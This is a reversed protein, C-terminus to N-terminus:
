FNCLYKLLVVFEADLINNSNPMSEILKTNYEFSKSTITKNSNIRNNAANNENADDSICDRYSNWLSGSTMSCNDSYELLNYMPMVINLDEANDIFTSNIKSICSRFWVSNKSNLKKNRNRADNDGEAAINKDVSYQCNSLGNIKIFKRAEFKSVTPNKKYYVSKTIINTKTQKINWRKKLYKMDEIELPRGNSGYINDYNWGVQYIPKWSSINPTSTYLVEYKQQYQNDIEKCQVLVAEVFELSLVNQWKKNQRNAKKHQCIIENNM